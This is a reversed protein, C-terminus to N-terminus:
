AEPGDDDEGYDEIEADRDSIWIWAMVYAGPDSGRSVIANEDIELEGDTGRGMAASVFKGDEEDQQESFFNVCDGFTLNPIARLQAQMVEHRLDVEPKVDNPM